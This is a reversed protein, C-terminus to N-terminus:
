KLLDNQHLVYEILPQECKKLLRNLYYPGLIKFLVNVLRRIPSPFELTNKYIPIISCYEEGLTQKGILTTLLYYIFDSTLRIESDYKSLTRYHIMTELSEIILFRLLQKYEEDRQYSRMIEPQKSFAKNNTNSAIEM